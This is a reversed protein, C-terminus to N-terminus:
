VLHACMFNDFSDFDSWEATDEEGLSVVSWLEMIDNDYTYTDVILDNHLCYATWLSRLQDRSLEDDFYSEQAFKKMYELERSKTSLHKRLEEIFEAAEEVAQEADNRRLPPDIEDHLRVYARLDNCVNYCRDEIQRIDM